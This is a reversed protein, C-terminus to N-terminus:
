PLLDRYSQAETPITLEPPAGFLIDEPRVYASYYDAIPKRNLALRAGDIAAGAFLGKSTAYNYIEADFRSDTTAQVDLSNPGVAVSADAGITFKSKLLSRVSRENVILLVVDTSEGGIQLGFSAGTLKLFAHPTWGGEHRCSIVGSGRRGGVVFAGKIVRPIVAICFTTDLLQRPPRSDGELLTTLAETARAVTEAPPATAMAPITLAACLALGILRSPM